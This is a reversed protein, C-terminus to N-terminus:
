VIGHEVEEAAAAALLESIRVSTEGAILQLRHACWRSAEARTDFAAEFEYLSRANGNIVFIHRGDVTTVHEAVSIHAEAGSHASITVFAVFKTM